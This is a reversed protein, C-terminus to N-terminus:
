DLDPGGGHGPRPRPYCGFGVQEKLSRKGKEQMDAENVLRHAKPSLPNHRKINLVGFSACYM